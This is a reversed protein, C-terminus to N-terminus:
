LFLFKRCHSITKIREFISNLFNMCDQNEHPKYFGFVTLKRLIRLTLLAKELNTTIIETSANLVIDQIFSQSYNNWLNLVFAFINTTFEFFHRRDGLILFNLM